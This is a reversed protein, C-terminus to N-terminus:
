VGPAREKWAGVVKGSEERFMVLDDVLRARLWPNHGCHVDGRAIMAPYPNKNPDVAWAVREELTYSKEAYIYEVLQRVSEIHTTPSLFGIIEPRDM